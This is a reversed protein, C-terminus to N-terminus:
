YELKLLTANPLASVQVGDGHWLRLDLVGAKAHVGSGPIRPGRGQWLVADVIGVGLGLASGACLGIAAASLFAEGARPQDQFTQRYSVMGMGAGVAGGLVGFGLMNYLVTIGAGPKDSAVEYASLPLSLAGAGGAAGYVAGLIVSQPGQNGRQAYPIAGVAAGIVGGVFLGAFVNAGYVKGPSVKRQGPLAAAVEDARLGSAALALCLLFSLVTRTM